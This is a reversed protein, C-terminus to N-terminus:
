NFTSWHVSNKYIHFHSKCGVHRWISPYISLKGWKISFRWRPKAESLLNLTILEGCKCPCKFVICWYFRKEGVIYLRENVVTEPIDSSFEYDVRLNTDDRNFFSILKKSFKM